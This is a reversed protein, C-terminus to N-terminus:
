VTGLYLNFVNGCEDRMSADSMVMKYVRELNSRAIAMAM